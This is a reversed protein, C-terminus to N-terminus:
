ANELADIIRARVEDLWESYGYDNLDCDDTYREDAPTDAYGSVQLLRVMSGDDRQLWSQDSAELHDLLTDDDLDLYLQHSMGDYYDCSALGTFFAQLIDANNDMIADARTSEDITLGHLAAVDAAITALEREATDRDTSDAANINRNMEDAIALGDVNHHGNIWYPAAIRYITYNSM